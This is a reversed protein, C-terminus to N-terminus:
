MPMYTIAPPASYTIRALDRTDMQVPSVAPYWTTGDRSFELASVTGGVVFLQGRILATYTMPSAAITVAEPDQPTGDIVASYLNTLFLFWDKQMVANSIIVPTQSRVMAFKARLTM